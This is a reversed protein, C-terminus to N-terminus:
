RYNKALRNELKLSYSDLQSNKNILKNIQNNRNNISKKNSLHRVNALIELYGLASFLFRGNTYAVFFNIKKKM